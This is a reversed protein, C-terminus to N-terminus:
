QSSSLPGPQDHALRSSAPAGGSHRAPRRGATFPRGDALEWVLHDPAAGSVRLRGGHIGRLHHPACLGTTNESGNGGGHSRFVVHHGQASARSCGPVTCRGGNRDRIRQSPTARRGPPPKWVTWFHAMSLALCEGRGPSGNSAEAMVRLAAELLRAVRVPMRVVFKGRACVQADETAEVAQELEVCTMGEARRIWENVSDFDAVAALLRAKEYSIEGQALAHRLQPLAEMRKELWVRQELARRSMGLRERAYHGLNAFGLETALHKRAFLRALMGFNEDWGERRAVLAKLRADLARPEMQPLEPAAVPEVSELWDWTNSEIELAKELDEPPIAGEVPEVPACLEGERLLAAHWGLVEDSVAEVQRWRPAGRWLTEEALRMGEDVLVELGPPIDISVVTWREDEDSAPPAASAAGSEGAAGAEVGAADGTGPAEDGAVDGGELARKVIRHLERVSLSGARAVWAKEAEGRAVPFLERAHRPSLHGLRVAERLLPRSKLERALKAKDRATTSKLGLEERAYDEMKSYGLDMLQDRDDLACLGEGIALDLAERGRALSAFIREFPISAEGGLLNPFHHPQRPRFNRIEETLSELRSALAADGDGPSGALLASTDLAEGM